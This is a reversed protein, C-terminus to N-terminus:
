FSTLSLASRKMGSRNTLTVRRIELDDEPSVAIETHTEVRHDQRRFEARGQTFVAHYNRGTTLSPHYSTSWFRDGKGEAVYCFIGWGDCTPDERWRNIAIDNWRSYGGGAATVMVHYRGNSLLHIEPTPTALDIVVGDGGGADRGRMGAEGAFGGDRGFAPFHGRGVEAGAGAAVAGGGPVVAGAFVARADAVRGVMEAVSVLSMGQHHAMFNRVIIQRTNEPLRSPTFDIAEYFGYRGVYNEDAMRRLNRCAAIPNVMLAMM